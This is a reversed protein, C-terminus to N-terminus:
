RLGGNLSTKLAAIQDQISYRKPEEPPHSICPECYKVTRGPKSPACEPEGCFYATGCQPCFHEHCLLARLKRAAKAGDKILLDTDDSEYSGSCDSCM